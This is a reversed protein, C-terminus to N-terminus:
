CPSNGLLDSTVFLIPGLKVALGGEQLAKL